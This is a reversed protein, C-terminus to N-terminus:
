DDWNPQISREAHECCIRHLKEELRWDGLSFKETLEKSQEPTLKDLDQTINYKEDYQRYGVVKYIVEECGGGESPEDWSAPIYPVYSYEIELDFCEGKETDHEWEIKM